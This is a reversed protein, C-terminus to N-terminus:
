AKIKLIWYIGMSRIKIQALCIQLTHRTAMYSQFSSKQVVATSFKIENRKKSKARRGTMYKGNKLTFKAETVYM